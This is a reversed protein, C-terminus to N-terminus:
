RDLGQRLAKTKATKRSQHFDAMAGFTVGVIILGLGLIKEISLAENLVVASSLLGVVPVGMSALATTVAPLTQNATVWAWFCFASALPGNYLIVLGLEPSWVPEPAGEITIALLALVPVALLMQWPVLTLSNSHWQHGRIHVIAIAWSFAALMLLGDGKMSNENGTTPAWPQFLAIVGCLGAILGVVKLRGLREKLFILALPTVWLPTTYALIASRGSDVYQLGLHVLALFGAVQLLGVSVILPWDKWNPIMPRKLIKILAFLFFSGMLARACAFWLPQIYDIGIKMVPWNCGWVVIVGFMLLYARLPTTPSNVM